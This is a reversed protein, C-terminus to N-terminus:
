GRAILWGMIQALATVSLGSYQSQSATDEPLSQEFLQERGLFRRAVQQNSSAYRALLAERGARALVPADSFNGSFQTAHTLAMLQERFRRKELPSLPLGNVMRQFELIDRNIRTNVEEAAFEFQNAPIDLLALFDRCIDGCQLDGAQYPRVRVNTEGFTEAWGDLKAAYDWLAECEEVSDAWSAAYGQAKVKQNYWSIQAEDQRRVYVVIEVSAAPFGWGELMRAVDGPDAQLYFNESSLVIRDDNAIEAAMEGHLQSYSKSQPLAWDPYGATVLFALDHHGYGRLTASPYKWDHQKLIASNATLFKELATSGTKPAGIHLLCKRTM